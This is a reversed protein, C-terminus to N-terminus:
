YRRRGWLLANFITAGGVVYIVAPDVTGIGEGLDISPNTVNSYQTVTENVGTTSNYILTEAPVTITETGNIILTQNVTSTITETVTNIQRNKLTSSMNFYTIHSTETFGFDIFEQFGYGNGSGLMFRTPLDEFFVFVSSLQGDIWFLIAGSLDVTIKLDVNFAETEQLKLSFNQGESTGTIYISRNNNPLSKMGFAVTNNENYEVGIASQMGLFPVYIGAQLYDIQYTYNRLFQHTSILLVDNDIFTTDFNVDYDAVVDYQYTFEENIFQSPVPVSSTQSNGTFMVAMILILLALYVRYQKGM